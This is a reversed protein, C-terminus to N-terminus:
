RAEAWTVRAESSQAVQLQQVEFRQCARPADPMHVTVTFRGSAEVKAMQKGALHKSLRLVGSHGLRRHVSGLHRDKAAGYEVTAAAPAYTTYGLTLRMTKRDPYAVVRATATRLYCDDAPSFGADEAEAECDEEAEGSDEVAEGEACEGEAEGEDEEESMQMALALPIGTAEADALAAAPQAIALIALLALPLLFRIRPM